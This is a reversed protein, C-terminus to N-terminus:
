EVVIRGKPMMSYNSLNFEFAGTRYFTHNWSDRKNLPPSSAGDVNVVHVASDMNTWRVTTGNIVRLSLVDFTLGKIEIYVTSPESVPFAQTPTPTATQNVSTNVEPERDTCGSVALILVIFCCLSWKYM